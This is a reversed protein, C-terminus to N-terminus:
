RAGGRLPYFAVRRTLRAGVMRRDVPPPVESWRRQDGVARGSHDARRRPALLGGSIPRLWTTLCRIKIGGNPPELGGAGALWDPRRWAVHSSREFDRSVAANRLNLHVPRANWVYRAHDGDCRDRRRGCRRGDIPRRVGQQRWAGYRGCAGWGRSAGPRLVRRALLAARPPHEVP